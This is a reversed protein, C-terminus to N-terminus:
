KMLKMIRKINVVFITTAAQLNMGLVGHSDAQGFAHANKLEANKAEIKYRAKMKRKFEHTEQFEMHNKHINSKISVSYSKSNAGEKYCTAKLPCIKCKEIDFFYTEVMTKGEEKHKKKGSTTKRTAMHGEPCVYMGADKNYFFGEVKRKPGISVSRSLRSYLKFNDDTNAIKINDSESYAADAIVSKVEMGAERSKEVLAELQKGDHKEGSTVTAATIIREDSMAIHTKYGFFHTDANKHGVKADEDKSLQLEYMHDDIVEDLYDVGERIEGYFMLREDKRLTNCLKKTYKMEADLMGKTKNSPKKPLKDIMTEDIKYVNKRLKKSLSQLVQLPSKQNYRASTHTADVIIANSKLLGHEKAISVTKGILLDLVNTDKLRLRRFKTLTTSEIVTDEPNLGLFYKYSMDTFARKVLGVDSVPYMAKLLLYKFMMIPDIAGRGMTASYKDKLEDYVFEFDILENIQRLENDSTVLIDYLRSFESINLQTQTKLMFGGGISSNYWLILIIFLM